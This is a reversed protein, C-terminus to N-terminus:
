DQKKFRIFGYEGGFILLLGILALWIIPADSQAKAWVFAFLIVVDLIIATTV